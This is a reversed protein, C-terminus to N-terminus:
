ELLLLLKVEKIELQQLQLFCSPRPTPQCMIKAIDRLSFNMLFFFVDYRQSLLFVVNKQVVCQGRNKVVDLIFIFGFHKVNFATLNGLYGYFIINILLVFQLMYLDSTM